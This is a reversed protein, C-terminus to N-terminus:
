PKKLLARVKDSAELRGTTVWKFDTDDVYDEDPRPIIGPDLHSEDVDTRATVAGYNRSYIELAEKGAVWNAFIRAANPHPARNAYTLLFPSSTLRKKMGTLYVERLKFGEKQLDKMDDQRCTLCIPYTGRALWDTLQRRERSYIPKQDIYLKRVFDPGLQSYFDVAKNIAVGTGLPDESSIKGKWKPNLLDQVSQMEEPKVIDGNIFIAGGISNFLLMIYQQEPDVFTPKGAKWNAGDTVEPLILLPKLPDVMKDGYLTNMTAGAGNLFIDASYIGAKRETNLKQAMQGGSGVAIYEVQVGFRAEFKPILEKRAVPDASGIVVVKGEKKAAALAENWTKQWDAEDALAASAFLMAVFLLITKVM